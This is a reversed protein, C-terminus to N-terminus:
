TRMKRAKSSFHSALPPLFVMAIIAGEILWISSSALTSWGVTVSLGDLASRILGEALLAILLFRAFPAFFFLGIYAVLTLAPIVFYLLQITSDAFVSGEGRWNMALRIRSLDSVWYADLYFLMASFAIALIILARFAVIVRHADIM